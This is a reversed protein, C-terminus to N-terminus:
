LLVAASISLKDTLWNLFYFDCEIVLEIMAQKQTGKSLKESNGEKPL